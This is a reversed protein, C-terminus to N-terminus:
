AEMRQLLARLVDKCREMAPAYHEPLVEDGYYHRWLAALTDADDHVDEGAAVTATAFIMRHRYDDADFPADTQEHASAGTQPSLGGALILASTSKM